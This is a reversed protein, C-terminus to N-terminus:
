GAGAGDGGEALPLVARGLGADVVARVAAPRFEDGATTPGVEDDIARLRAIAADVRGALVARRVPQDDSV